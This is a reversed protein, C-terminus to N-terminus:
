QWEEEERIRRMRALRPDNLHSCCHFFFIWVTWGGDLTQYKREPEGDAGVQESATFYNYQRWVSSSSPSGFLQGGLRWEFGQSDFM